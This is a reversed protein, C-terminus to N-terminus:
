NLHERFLTIQNVDDTYEDYWSFDEDDSYLEFVIFSVEAMFSAWGELFM